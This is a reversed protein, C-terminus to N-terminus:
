QVAYIQLYFIIEKKTFRKNKPMNSDEEAEEIDEIEM